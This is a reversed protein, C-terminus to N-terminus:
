KGRVDLKCAVTLTLAVEETSISRQTIDGPAACDVVALAAGPTQVTEAFSRTREVWQKTLKARHAEPDAVRLQPAEFALRVGEAAATTENKAAAVLAAVLRTRAWYDLNAALPVEFVGDATLAWAPPDGKASKGFGYSPAVALGRMRVTGGGAISAFRQGIATSTGQAKAVSKEPDLDIVSVVFPVCLLDPRVVIGASVTERAPVGPASPTALTGSYSSSTSGPYAPDPGASHAGGCATSVAAALGAWLILLRARVNM